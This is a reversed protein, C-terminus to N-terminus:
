RREWLMVAGGVALGGLLLALNGMAVGLAPVAVGGLVAAVLVPRDKRQRLILTTFYLPVLLTLALGLDPPLVTGLAHGAISGTVAGAACFAGVLGTYLAPRTIAADGLRTLIVAFSSASILGLVASQRLRGPLSPEPPPLRAAVAAIMVMFRLNVIGAAVIASLWAGGSLVELAAVQAPAALTFLTMIATQPASLGVQASLHGVGTFMLLFTVVVVVSDRGAQAATLLAEPPSPATAQETM